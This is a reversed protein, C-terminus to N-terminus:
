CGGGPVTLRPVVGTATMEYIATANGDDGAEGIVWFERNATRIIAAPTYRVVSNESVQIARADVPTWTGSEDRRLWGSVSLGAIGRATSASKSATFHFWHPWTPFANPAAAVIELPQSRWEAQGTIISENSGFASRVARELDSWDPDSADLRRFTEIPQDTDIAFGKYVNKKAEPPKYLDLVVPSTCSANPNREGRRASVITVPLNKGDNWLRWQSSVPGDLWAAPIQSLPPVPKSAEEPAPWTNVWETGTFRGVPELADGWVIALRFSSPAPPPQPANAPAPAAAAPPHEASPTPRSCASAVVLCLCGGALLVNRSM